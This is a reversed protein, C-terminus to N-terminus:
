AWSEKELATFSSIHEFWRAMNPTKPIEKLSAFVTADKKSPAYGGLYPHDDLFAEDGSANKPASSKESSPGGKPSGAPKAAKQGGVAAAAAGNGVSALAAKVEEVPMRGKYATFTDFPRSSPNSEAKLREVCKALTINGIADKEDRSRLNVSMSAEEAEGVIAAYNWQAIQANRVKKNLTNSSPDFEAYFGFTVLTDTVYKAYDNFAASVPIIMVQRPSLWFPWKGGFHETIIAVFREVSGLIARHIIVPREFGPKEKQEKWVYVGKKIAEADTDEGTQAEVQDPHLTAKEKPADAAKKDKPAKVSDVLGAGAKLATLKAVLTAVEPKENLEKGVVGEAKLKEKLVKIEEGVAKMAADNAAKVAPDIEPKAEKKSVKKGEAKDEKDEQDADDEEAGEARYQLNFRIPLQFDLQITGCQHRRRLADTLRIDIKPGYFAGDGPNLSWDKGTENLAEKLAAEAKDWVSKEGIAKKPRTSLAITYEFGFVQYVYVLFSLADLVEKKIQDPRCFIHADDQQFRRVRTLGSLTGSLENRHLVGFSAMRIPLEKYSRVRHDFMMCHGPCNMPKLFWEQGEVTFGYMNDKYNMYHGSRHFLEESYMNPTIVESFGRITYERRMFAMLENYLRTGMPQWFCSGPSVTAHFFFLEQKNGVNRHDREAAEELMKKYDKLRKDDPFSIGYIRQLSDYDAKGLWYASSNKTCMFAKIRDTTPVHPGRCLDILPGCRYASTMAGDPIKTSILQVKFPNDAFLELAEEKTIVLREFPEKKNALDEVAKQIEAFDADNLKKDGVFIDYYFGSELPPGVCLYGGYLQELAAGLMHATSHWFAETGKPNDFKLLELKCSGELPRNMDWLTSNASAPDAEEEDEDDSLSAPMVDGKLESLSAIEETYTVQCCVVEGALKKSIATAIEMPTTVFSTGTKVAGDPLTIEIPKSAKATEAFKAQSAKAFQNWVELRKPIYDPNKTPTFKGEFKGGEGIQASKINITRKPPM